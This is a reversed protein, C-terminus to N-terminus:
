APKPKLFLVEGCFDIWGTRLDARFWGDSNREHFRVPSRRGCEALDYQAWTGGNDTSVILGTAMPSAPACHAGVFVGDQVIMCGAEVEPNYLREHRESHPIDEPRCRFVGRDYPKPGNSDSIWYVHEGVFTIGGCKYRSNTRDSLLVRWDWADAAADYTGRLWHCEYGEPRDADGTCSYFANEAPNYAVTHVHRCLTPNGADGLASDPRFAGGADKEQWYPSRGFSYAVKVTRGGDASYYINVPAAGGVVNCYNGWVLMERGNVDWCSKGSLSHFYWGPRAPDLPAHPLCDAGDRDKVVVPEVTRLDDTSRFLQNLTAFLITGNALIVSFTVNAADAFEHRHPWTRGCDESLLVCGDGHAFAKNDRQSDVYPGGVQVRYWFRDTEGAIQAPTTMGRTRTDALLASGGPEPWPCVMARGRGSDRRRLPAGACNERFRRALRSGLIGPRPRRPQPDDQGGCARRDLGRQLERRPRALHDREQEPPRLDPLHRGGDRHRRRRAQRLYHQYWCNYSEALMITTSPHKFMTETNPAPSAATGIGERFVHSMPMQYRTWQMRDSTKDLTLSPCAFVGKDQVYPFIFQAWIVRGDPYGDHDDYVPAFVQNNDDKYMFQGLALQKMNGTCSIQRAKERAKSLAPLLMSALIAIIAIVVLLEILTFREKRM